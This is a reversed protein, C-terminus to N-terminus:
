EFIKCLTLGVNWNFLGSSGMTNLSLEFEMTRLLEAIEGLLLQIWKSGDSIQPLLLDTTKTNFYDFQMGLSKKFLSIDVGANYNYTTEWKINKNGISSPAVGPRFTYFAPEYMSYRGNVPIDQNATIGWSARLNLEDFFSLNNM